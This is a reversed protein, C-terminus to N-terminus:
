PPYVKDEDILEIFQQINAYFKTKFTQLVLESNAKSHMFSNRESKQQLIRFRNNQLQPRKVRKSLLKTKKLEFQKRYSM